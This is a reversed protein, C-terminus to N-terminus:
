PALIRLSLRGRADLATELSALRANVAATASPPATIILRTGHADSQLEIQAGLVQLEAALSQAASKPEATRWLAEAAGQVGVGRLGDDKPAPWMTAVLVTGLVIAAAMAHWPRWMAQNAADARHPARRQEIHLPSNVPGDPVGGARRELEAFAPMEVPVDPLLAERLRQGEAHAGGQGQRGALGDLWRLAEDPTPEPALPERDRDM